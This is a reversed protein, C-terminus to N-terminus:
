QSGQDVAIAAIERYDKLRAFVLQFLKRLQRHQKRSESEHELCLKDVMTSLPEGLDFDAFCGFAICNAFRDHLTQIADLFLNSKVGSLLADLQSCGGLSLLSRSRDAVSAALEAFLSMSESFSHLLESLTSSKAMIQSREFLQSAVTKLQACVRAFKLDAFILAFANAVLSEDDGRPLVAVLLQRGCSHVAIPWGAKDVSLRCTTTKADVNGNSSKGCFYVIPTSDIGNVILSTYSPGAAVDLVSSQSGVKFLIPVSVAPQDAKKLQGGNNSGWVFVM